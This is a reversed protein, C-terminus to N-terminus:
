RKVTQERIEVADEIGDSDTDKSRPNTGYRRELRDPVRDRDSDRRAARRARERERRELEAVSPACDREDNMLLCIQRVTEHRLKRGFESAGIGAMIVSVVLLMGLLETATQGTQARM